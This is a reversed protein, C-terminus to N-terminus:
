MIKNELQIIRKDLYEHYFNCYSINFEISSIEDKIQDLRREYYNILETIFTNTKEFRKEINNDYCNILNVFFFIFILIFYIQKM